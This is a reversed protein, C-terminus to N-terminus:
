EFRGDWTLKRRRRSSLLHEIFLLLLALGLPWMFQENYRSFEEAKLDKKDLKEIENYIRDLELGAGTSHFYRGDAAEAVRTLVEENLTTLVTNGGEDKKYVVGGGQDGLPIPVGGKTGIGLTYIIVGQARAKEAEAVPDELNDEGDTILILVKYKNEKRDFLSAARTIARSVATGQASIAAPDLVDLQMRVAGYDTTLPCPVFADGAFAVLGVRDGKVKEIFRGIEYRARKMRNPSIDEALMSVSVDLAVVIDVGKRPMIELRAGWLPRALAIVVAAYAAILLAAKWAQRGSSTAATIKAILREEGFSLLMRKKWRFALWYFFILVPVLLLLFLYQPDRYLM